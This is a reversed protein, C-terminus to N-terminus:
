LLSASKKENYGTLHSMIEIQGMVTVLSTGQPEKILITDALYIRQSCIKEEWFWTLMGNRVLSKINENIDSNTSM